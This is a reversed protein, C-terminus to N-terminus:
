VADVSSDAVVLACGLRLSAWGFSFQRGPMITRNSTVAQWVGVNCRHTAFIQKVHCGM